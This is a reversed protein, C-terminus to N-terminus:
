KEGISKARMRPHLALFIELDHVTTLLRRGLRVVQLGPDCENAWRWAKFEDIELGCVNKVVERVPRLMFAPNSRLAQSPVKRGNIRYIFRLAQEPTTMPWRRDDTQLVIGDVGEAVWKRITPETFDVGTVEYFVPKVLGKQRSRLNQGKRM